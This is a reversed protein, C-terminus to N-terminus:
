AIAQRQLQYFLVRRQRPHVRAVLRLWVALQGAIGSPIALRMALDQAFRTMMDPPLDVFANLAYLVEERIGPPWERSMDRFMSALMIADSAESLPVSDGYESEVATPIRRRRDFYAIVVGILAALILVTATLMAVSSRVVDAWGLVLTALAAAVIGTIRIPTTWASAQPILLMEPNLRRKREFDELRATVERHERKLNKLDRIVKGCRDNVEDDLRQKLVAREKESEDLKEKFLHVAQLASRRPVFKNEGAAILASLVVATTEISSVAKPVAGWGGDSNPSSLLDRLLPEVITMDAPAAGVFCRLVAGKVLTERVETGTRIQEVLWRAGRERANDYRKDDLGQLATVTLATPLLALEASPMSPWGGHQRDQQALLVDAIRGVLTATRDGCEQLHLASMALERVSKTTLSRKDVLSSATSLVKELYDADEAADAAAISALESIQLLGLQRLEKKEFRFAAAVDSIMVSSREASCRRLAEVVLSSHYSDGGAQPYAGWGTGALRASHLFGMAAAIERSIVLQEGSTLLTIAADFQTMEM